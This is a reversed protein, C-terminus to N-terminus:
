FIESRHSKAWDGPVQKLHATNASEEKVGKVSKSIQFGGEHSIKNKLKM